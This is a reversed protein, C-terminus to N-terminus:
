RRPLTSPISGPQPLHHCQLSSRGCGKRKFVFYLSTVLLFPKPRSCFCSLLNRSTLLVNYQLFSNRRTFDESQNITMFKTNKQLIRSPLFGSYHFVIRCEFQLSIKHSLFRYYAHRCRRLHVLRGSKRYTRQMLNCFIIKYCLLFNLRLLLPLM